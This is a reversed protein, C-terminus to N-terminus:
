SVLASVAVFFMFGLVIVASSIWRIQTRRTAETDNSHSTENDTNSQDILDVYVSREEEVKETVFRVADDISIMNQSMALKGDLARVELEDKLEEQALTLREKGFAAHKM